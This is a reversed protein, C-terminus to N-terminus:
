FRYIASPSTARSTSTGGSCSRLGHLDPKISAARLWLKITPSRGRTARVWSTLTWTTAGLHIRGITVNRVPLPETGM